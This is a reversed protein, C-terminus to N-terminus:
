FTRLGMGRLTLVISIMRDNLDCPKTVRQLKDQKSKLEGRPRGFLTGRMIRDITEAAVRAQEDSVPTGSREMSDVKAASLPRLGLAESVIKTSGAFENRLPGTIVRLPLLVTPEAQLAAELASVSVDTFDATLARAKAYAADFHPLEYFEEIPVYAYDPALHTVYLERAVSAYIAPHENTGHMSPIQRVRAVRQDWTAADVIRKVTELVSAM